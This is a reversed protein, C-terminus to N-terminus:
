IVKQILVTFDLDCGALPHNYDVTVNEETVETVTAKFIEGNEGDAELVMGIELNIGEFDSIPLTEALEDNYAGYAEDAPVKIKKTEGENMDEIRTELGPIIEGSEYTFVIPESDINSELIEDNIKLEFNMTVTQNKKIAM